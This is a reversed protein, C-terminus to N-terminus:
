RGDDGGQQLAARRREQYRRAALRNCERCMMQRSNHRGYIKLDHGQACLGEQLASRVVPRENPGPFNLFAAAGYVKRAADDYAQAAAEATTFRGLWRGRQGNAPEIRARFMQRSREFEVGRFGFKNNHVRTSDSRKPQEGM